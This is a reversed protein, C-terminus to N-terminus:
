QRSYKNDGPVRREFHSKRENGLENNSVEIPPNLYRYRARISPRKFGLKCCM